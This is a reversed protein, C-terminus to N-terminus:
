KQYINIILKIKFMKIISMSFCEKTEYLSEKPRNKEFVVKSYAVHVLIELDRHTAWAGKERDDGMQHVNTM